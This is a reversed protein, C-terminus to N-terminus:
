KGVGCVKPPFLFAPQLPVSWQNNESRLRSGFEKTKAHKYSFSAVEADLTFVNRCEKAFSPSM